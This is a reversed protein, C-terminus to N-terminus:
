QFKQRRIYRFTLIHLKLRSIDMNPFIPICPTRRWSIISPAVNLLLSTMIVDCHLINALINPPPSFQIHGCAPPVNAPPSPPKLGGFIKGFDKLIVDDTVDDDSCIAGEIINQWRM